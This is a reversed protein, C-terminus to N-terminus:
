GASLPRWQTWPLCGAHCSRRNQSCAGTAAASAASRGNRGGGPLMLGGVEPLSFYVSPTSLFAVRHEQEGAGCEQVAQLILRETRRQKPVREHQAQAYLANLAAQVLGRGHVQVLANITPQSYWYQNLDAREPCTSAFGKSAAMGARQISLRGSRPLQPRM